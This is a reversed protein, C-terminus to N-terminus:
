VERAIRDSMSSPKSEQILAIKVKNSRIVDKIVVRRESNGMGSVNWSLVIMLFSAYGRLNEAGEIRGSRWSM